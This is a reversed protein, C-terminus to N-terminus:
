KVACLIKEIKLIALTTKDNAYFGPLLICMALRWVSIFPGYQMVLKGM